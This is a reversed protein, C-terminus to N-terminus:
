LAYVHVLVPTERGLPRVEVLTGMHLPDYGPIRWCALHAMAVQLALKDAHADAVLSQAHM